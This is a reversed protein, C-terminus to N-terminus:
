EFDSVVAHSLAQPNPRILDTRILFSVPSQSSPIRSATAGPIGGRVIAGRIRDVPLEVRRQCWEDPCSTCHRFGEDPNPCDNLSRACIRGNRLDRLGNGGMISKALSTPGLRDACSYSLRDM